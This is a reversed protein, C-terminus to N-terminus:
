TIMDEFRLLCLCVVAPCDVLYVLILLFFIVCRAISDFNVFPFGEDEYGALIFLFNIM